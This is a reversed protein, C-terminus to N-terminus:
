QTTIYTASVYAWKVEIASNNDGSRATFLGNSTITYGQDWINTSNVQAKGIVIIDLVPKFGDPLRIGSTTLGASSFYRLYVIQNMKILSLGPISNDVIYSDKAPIISTAM